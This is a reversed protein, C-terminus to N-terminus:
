MAFLWRWGEFGGARIQTLGYALLGGFASAFASFAFIVSSRKGRESKKYVWALYVNVCPILGSEFFGM